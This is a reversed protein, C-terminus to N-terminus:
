GKFGGGALYALEDPTSTRGLTTNRHPFRGFREVLDAHLRAFRLYSEDGGRGVYAEFLKVAKAQSARSEDHEVPLYFFTQLELAVHLDFGNSLAEKAVTRALPDTAFARATGRYMNRPFQDLLILLALAGRADARWGLHEGRAAELHVIEFRQRIEWDFDPDRRFWRKPGAAIWFEVIEKAQEMM